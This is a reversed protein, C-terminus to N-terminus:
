NKYLKYAEKIKQIGMGYMKINDINKIDILNIEYYNDPNSIEKEMGGLVPEGKIYNVLYYHCIGNEYEEYGLYKNISVDLSVEELVERICAEELTENIEVGGGPIAYYNLYTDNEKRIRKLLLVKNNFFLIGRSTIRKKM